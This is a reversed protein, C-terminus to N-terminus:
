KHVPIRMVSRWSRILILLLMYTLGYVQKTSPPFLTDIYPVRLPTQQMESVILIYKYLLILEITYLIMIQLPLYRTIYKEYSCSSKNDKSFVMQVPLLQPSPHQYFHSTDVSLNM